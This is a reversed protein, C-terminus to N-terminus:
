CDVGQSDAVLLRSVVTVSCQWRLSMYSTWLRMNGEPAPRLWVALSQVFSYQAMTVPSVLIHRWIYLSANRSFSDSWSTRECDTDKIMWIGEKIRSGASLLVSAGDKTMLIRSQTWGENWSAPACFFQNQSCLISITCLYLALSALRRLTLSNQWCAVAVASPCVRVRRHDLHRTM